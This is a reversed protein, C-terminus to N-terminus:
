DVFQLLPAVRFVPNVQSEQNISLRFAWVGRVIDHSNKQASAHMCTPAFPIGDMSGSDAMEDNREPSFHM